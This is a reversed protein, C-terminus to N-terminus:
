FVNSETWYAGAHFGFGTWDDLGASIGGNLALNDIPLYETSVVATLEGATSGTLSGLLLLDGTIYSAGGGTFRFYDSITEKFPNGGGNLIYEGAMSLRFDVFTTSTIGGVALETGSDRLEDGTPLTLRGTLKLATGGRTTEYLWGGAVTFDGTMSGEFANDSPVFPIEASIELNDSLGLNGRLPVTMISGSDTDVFELVTGLRLNGEPMMDSTNLGYWGSLGYEGLSHPASAALAAGLFLLVTTKRM